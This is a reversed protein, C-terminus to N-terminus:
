EWKLCTLQFLYILTWVGWILGLINTIWFRLSTNCIWVHYSQTILCNSINNFELTLFIMFTIMISIYCIGEYDLRKLIKM